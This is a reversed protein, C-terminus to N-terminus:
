LRGIAGGAISVQRLCEVSVPCNIHGWWVAIGVGVRLLYRHDWGEFKGRGGDERVFGARMLGWSRRCLGLSLLPVPSACFSCREFCWGLCWVGWEKVM